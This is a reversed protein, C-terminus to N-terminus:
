GAKSAPPYDIYGHADGGFLTAPDLGALPLGDRIRVPLDPNAIFPRGFAILDALGAALMAEGRAADYRGAVILKGAYAARLKHRFEEPVQPADDWDAEALHLYTIGMTSLGAAGELITPIIDPCNMNRATIYPALRVGVREAGIEGVVAAAVDLLLRLRKGRTGGYDDLRHNSTTRLFQDILYGNAAHIEVGDFGAERANRAAVRFDDVISAIEAIELARPV